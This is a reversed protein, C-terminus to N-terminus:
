HCERETPLVGILRLYEVLQREGEAQAEDAAASAAVLTSATRDKRYAAMGGRCSM